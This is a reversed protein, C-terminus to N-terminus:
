GAAVKAQRHLATRWADSTRDIGGDHRRHRARKRRGVVQDRGLVVAEHEGTSAGSPVAARGIEGSELLVEVEVTPNGRSDLIERGLVDVITTMKVGNLKNISYKSSLYHIFFNIVKKAAEIIKRPACLWNNVM